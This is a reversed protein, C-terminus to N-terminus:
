YDCYDRCAHIIANAWESQCATWQPHNTDILLTDNWECVNARVGTGIENTYAYDWDPEGDGFFDNKFYEFTNGFIIVDPSYAYIQEWLIDRWTDYKEWLTDNDTSTDAPMKNLNIYAIEHLVEGISPDNSLNLNNYNCNNIIGYSIKAMKQHTPNKIKTEYPYERFLEETISWGGNYNNDYAEKLIWLIKLDSNCYDSAYTLGDYLPEDGDDLLGNEEATEYIKQKIENQFDELESTDM